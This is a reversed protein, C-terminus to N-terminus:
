TKQMSIIQINGSIQVDKEKFGFFKFNKIIEKPSYFKVDGNKFLLPVFPNLITRLFSSQIYVDAIYIMGNSKLIRYAEKAFSTVDFFHHYAACVTVLDMSKDPFPTSECGSVHFEMDPNKVVAKSIMREAVDIGYGKIRKQGNIASLLSGTGCAIDLVSQNEEYSLKPLLLQHINYTFKGEHSSDYSDAKSNYANRSKENM